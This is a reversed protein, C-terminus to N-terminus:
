NDFVLLLKYLYEIEGFLIIYILLFKSVKCVLIVIIIKGIGFFGFLLVVRFGLGDDSKNFFKGLCFFIFNRVCDIFILKGYGKIEM